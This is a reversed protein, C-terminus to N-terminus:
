PPIIADVRELMEERVPWRLRKTVGLNLTTHVSILPEFGLSETPVGDELVQVVLQAAQMGLQNYDPYASFMGLDAQEGALHALPVVLPTKGRRFRAVWFRGLTTSNVLMNDPLMWIVEVEASKMRNLGRELLRPIKEELLPEGTECDLCHAILELKERALLRRSEEVFASFSRRHFVGIRTFEKEGLSRLKTFIVYAPVEFRVGLANRLGKAAEEAKLTMLVFKPLAAFGSDLEQMLKALKVAKSDMLIVGRPAYAGILKRLSDPADPLAPDFATWVYRRGLDSKMGSWAQEFSPGPPMLVLLRNSQSQAFASPLALLVWLPTGKVWAPLLPRRM